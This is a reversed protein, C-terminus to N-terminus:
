SCQPQRKYVDLHTYSVASGAPVELTVGESDGTYGVRDNSGPQRTHPVIGNRTDPAQSFPLIRVTGNAITTDDLTCWCTRDRICM